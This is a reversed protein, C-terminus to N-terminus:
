SVFGSFEYRSLAITAQTLRMYKEFTALARINLLLRCVKPGTHRGTGKVATLTFAIASTM